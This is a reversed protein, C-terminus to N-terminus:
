AKRPEREVGNKRAIRYLTMRSIGLRKAAHAFNWGCAELAELLRAKETEQRAARLSLADGPPAAEPEAGAPPAARPPEELGLHRAGLEAGPSTAAARLIANRLERVNGPWPHAALAARAAPALTLGERGLEAEAVERFHEALLAVDGGRERLPPVAVGLVNLRYYLDQRFRRERVADALPRHCAAVVRVDVPRPSSGGVRTVEREQLIRLLAAQAEPPLENVEDLFLTGGHADEFRGPAGGRRAGTFAGDEHGFLEAEVLGPPIAGCNVAVFPGGQRASEAHIAQAFLEKGTGSEGVLVVPLANRAAARALDTAQLLAPSAGIISAFTYRRRSSARAPRRHGVEPTRLIAGVPTDGYLVPTVVCSPGGPLEVRLEEQREPLRSLVARELAARLAPPLPGPVVLRRREAADNVDVVSGRSDVAFLADGTGRAARFAHRVVEARLARAAVIRERIVCAVAKAVNLAQRSHQDWRGTVDIVAVPAAEGPLIVPAAACSWAHWAEVYHEAAFVEVPRATALATGPGNTGASAESWTVGPRFDIEDLAAVVRPDGDASLMHGHGDFYALCHEALGRAFDDVVPIALRYCADLTRRADLEDPSLVLRPHRLGPEIGPTERARQWSERIEAALASPEEGGSPEEAGVVYREWAREAALRRALRDRATTTLAAPDLTM